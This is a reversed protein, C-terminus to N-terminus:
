LRTFRRSLGLPSKMKHPGESAITPKSMAGESCPLGTGLARLLNVSKPFKASPYTPLPLLTNHCNTSAVTASQAVSLQQQLQQIQRGQDRNQDRSKNYEKRERLMRERDADKMKNFIAPPFHFSAHYEVEQGDSLTIFSNDSRKKAPRGRNGGRGKRGQEHGGHDTRGFRAGRGRGGSVKNIHRQAKMTSAMQPPFKRNVENRFAALAQEYTITMPIRALDIGSGAKVPVLFDATVKQLLIRLKMEPSHVFQDERKNYTIFALTIQKEFEKWWMHPKKEGGYYLTALLNEAKTIDLAHVGVGEYHEKLAVYDLGGNYQAEYAQIKAEATENGALFNVLYTHVNSADITFAEGHLPAMSVYDDIFDVNPTPDALESTRCVYKLPIGDRGPISRLYNMFSPFWDTWKTENTFKGPKAADSLTSSKNIFQAHTKHRRILNPTDVVPFATTSPDRCLRREERVWQIFAKINRKTGPLLRVQGQNITLESYTKFEYDFETFGKDMCTAFDYGFLDAAIHVAPTDGEFKNDDNVGCLVMDDYVTFASPVPLIAQPPIAAM